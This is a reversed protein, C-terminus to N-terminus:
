LIASACIGDADYDGYVVVTEDGEIAAELRETAEKMGKMTMPDYFGDLDPELFKRIGDESDIGRSILVEVIKPHLSLKDSLAKIETAAIERNSRRKLTVNM